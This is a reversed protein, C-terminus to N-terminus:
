RGAYQLWKLIPTYSALAHDAYYLWLSHQTRQALDVLPYSALQAAIEPFLSPRGAIPFQALAADGHAFRPVGALRGM